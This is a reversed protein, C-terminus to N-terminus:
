GGVPIYTSWALCQTVLEQSSFPKEIVANCGAALCARRDSETCNATVALIPSVYGLSRLLRTAALGDLVPMQIDMLVLHYNANDREAALIRDVGVRGNEAVDLHAGKFTLILQLLRRNDECDDVVLLRHGALLKTSPTESAEVDPLNNSDSSSPIREDHQHDLHEESPNM